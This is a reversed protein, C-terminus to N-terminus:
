RYAPWRPPCRWYLPSRWPCAPQHRFCFPLDRGSSFVSCLKKKLMIVSNLDIWFSFWSVVVIMSCPLYISIIYFSLERIRMIIIVIITITIIIITIITITTIITIFLIVWSLVIDTTIIIILNTNNTIIILNTNNTIMIIIMIIIMIPERAFTFDVQLCSYQGACDHM